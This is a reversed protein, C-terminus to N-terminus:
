HGKVLAADLNDILKVYFKKLVKQETLPMKGVTDILLKLSKKRFNDVFRRGSDTIEVINIRRDHPHPLRRAYGIKELKDVLNTIAPTSLRLHEALANMKQTGEEQILMLLMYQPLTIGEQAFKKSFYRTFRLHVKRILKLLDSQKEM